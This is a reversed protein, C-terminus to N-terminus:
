AEKPVAADGSAFVPLPTKPVPIGEPWRFDVFASAPYLVRSVADGQNGGICWLNGFKDQAEVFTVHGGGKRKKVAIAGPVPRPISVGYDLYSLARASRTSRIQLEELVGGVFAACWPTEDDIFIAGIRKWWKLIRWNHYPGPIEKTGLYSRALSLWPPVPTPKM